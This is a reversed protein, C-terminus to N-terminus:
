QFVVVLEVVSEDKTVPIFITLWDLQDLLVVSLLKCELEDEETRVL